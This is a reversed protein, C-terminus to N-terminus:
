EGLPAANDHAETPPLAGGGADPGPPAGRGVGEVRFLIWGYADERAVEQLVTGGSVWRGGGELFPAVRPAQTWEERFWLVWGIEADRIWEAFAGPDGRRSPVDFWSTLEREHPRRDLWCAPINDVLLPQGPPVEREIWRGLALQPAYLRASLGVQRATEKLNSGVGQLVLGGLLAYVGHARGARLGISWRWRM